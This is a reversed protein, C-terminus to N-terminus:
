HLLSHTMQLWLLLVRLLQNNKKSSFAKGSGLLLDREQKLSLMKSSYHKKKKFDQEFANSTPKFGDFVRILDKWTTEMSRFFASQDEFFDRLYVFAESAEKVLKFDQHEQDFLEKIQESIEGYILSLGGVSKQYSNFLSFLRKVVKEQKRVSHLRKEHPTEAEHEKPESSRKKKLGCFM